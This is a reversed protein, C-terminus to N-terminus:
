QMNQLLKIIGLTLWFLIMIVTINKLWFYWAEKVEIPLNIRDIIFVLIGLLPLYIWFSIKIINEFLETM